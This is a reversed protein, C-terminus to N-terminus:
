CLVIRRHLPFGTPETLAIYTAKNEPVVPWFSGVRPEPYPFHHLLVVGAFAALPRKSTAFATRQFAGQPDPPVDGGPDGGPKKGWVHDNL